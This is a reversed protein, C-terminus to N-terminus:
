FFDVLELDFIIPTNPDIDGSGYRGYALGSPLIITAKGKKNLLQLGEGFGRVVGDVTFQAVQTGTTEDFVEGNLFYGKYRVTVTSFPGPKIGDANGQDTIKYYLSSATVQYENTIGSTDLYNKIKVLDLDLQEQYTLVKEKNCALLALCSLTILILLKKMCHINQRLFLV